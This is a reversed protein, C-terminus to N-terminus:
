CDAGADGVDDGAGDQEDPDEIWNGQADVQYGHINYDVVELEGSANVNFEAYAFEGIEAGDVDYTQCQAEGGGDGAPLDRGTNEGAEFWEITNFYVTRTSSDDGPAAACDIDHTVNSVDGGDFLNGSDGNFVGVNGEGDRVMDFYEPNDVAISFKTEESLEEASGSSASGDEQMEGAGELRNWSNLSLQEEAGQNYEYAVDITCNDGATVTASRLIENTEPDYDEDMEMVEDPIEITLEEVPGPDEDFTFTPAGATEEGGEEEGNVEDNTQDEGNSTDADDGDGCATLALLLAASLATTKTLASKNTM